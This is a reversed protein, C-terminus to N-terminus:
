GVELPASGADTLSPVGDVDVEVVDESGVRWRGHDSREVIVSGVAELSGSPDLRVGPRDVREGLEVVGQLRWAIAALAIPSGVVVLLDDAGFPWGITHTVGPARPDVHNGHLSGDPEPHFTWLGAASALELHSFRGSPDTELLLAHRVAPGDAIIERWRRGRRGESITWTVTGGDGLRGWGALRVPANM